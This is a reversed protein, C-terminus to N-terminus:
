ATVSLNQRIILPLNQKQRLDIMRYVIKSWMVDAERIYEYPVAKKHPIHEKVYVEELADQAVLKYNPAALLLVSLLFM